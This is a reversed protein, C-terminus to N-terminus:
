QLYGLEEMRQSQPLLAIRERHKKLAPTNDLRSQDVRETVERVKESQIPYNIFNLVQTLSSAPTKLLDEYQLQILDDSNIKKVGAQISSLYVEWLNFCYSFNLTKDSYDFRYLKLLWKQKQRLAREYLSIAVDIGNRIIHVWKANPFVQQWVPIVLATRPDKWGWFYDPSQIDRYWTNTGFFRQIAPRIGSTLKERAFEAMENVFAPNNMAELISEPEAWHAKAKAYIQRNIKQFFVAEADRSLWVGMHIGMDTFMRSLLSTGSRHMGVIITPSSQELISNLEYKTQKM